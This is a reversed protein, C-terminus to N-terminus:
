RPPGRNIRRQTASKLEPWGRLSAKAEEYDQAVAAMLMSEARDLLTSSYKNMAEAHLHRFLNYQAEANGTKAQKELEEVFNARTVDIEVEYDRIGIKNISGFDLLSFVLGGLKKEAEDPPMSKFYEVEPCVGDFGKERISATNTSPATYFILKKSEEDYHILLDSKQSTMHHAEVTQGTVSYKM